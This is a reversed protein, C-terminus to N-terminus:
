LFEVAPNSVYATRTNVALNLLSKHRELVTVHELTESKDFPWKVKRWFRESTTQDDSPARSELRQKVRDLSDQCNKILEALTHGDAIPGGDDILDQLEGLVICLNQLASTLSKAEERASKFAHSYRYCLGVASASTAILQAVGLSVTFPDPM